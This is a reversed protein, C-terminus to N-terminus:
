RPRPYIQHRIELHVVMDQWLSWREITVTEGRVVLFDVLGHAAFPTCTHVLTKRSLVIGYRDTLGRQASLGAETAPLNQCKADCDSAVLKDLVRQCERRHHLAAGLLMGVFLLLIWSLYSLRRKLDSNM